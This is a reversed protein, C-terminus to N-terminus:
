NGYEMKVMMQVRREREEEMMLSTGNGLVRHGMKRRCCWGKERRQKREVDEVNHFQSNRGIVIKEKQGGRKENHFESDSGM